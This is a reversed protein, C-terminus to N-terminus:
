KGSGQASQVREDEAAADTLVRRDDSRADTLSQSEKANCQILSGVSRAGCDNRLLAAADSHADDVGIFLTLNCTGDKLQQLLLPLLKFPSLGVVVGNSMVTIFSRSRNVQNTIRDVPQGLQPGAGGICFLGPTVLQDLLLLVERLM